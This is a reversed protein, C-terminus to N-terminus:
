GSRGVFKHLFFAACLYHAGVRNIIKNYLNGLLFLRVVFKGWNSTFLFSLRKEQDCLIHCYATSGAM